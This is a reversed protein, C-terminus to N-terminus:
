SNRLFSNDWVLSLKLESKDSYNRISVQFDNIPSKKEFDKLLVSM